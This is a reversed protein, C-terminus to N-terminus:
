LLDYLDEALARRGQLPLQTDLKEKQSEVLQAALQHVRVRLMEWFQALLQPVSHPNECAVVCQYLDKLAERESALANVAWASSRVKLLPTVQRALAALLKDLQKYTEEDEALWILTSFLTYCQGIAFMSPRCLEQGVSSIYRFGTARLHGTMGGDFVNTWYREPRRYMSALATLIPRPNVFYDAMQWFSRETLFVDDIALTQITGNGLAFHFYLIIFERAKTDTKKPVANRQGLMEVEYLVGRYVPLAHRFDTLDNDEEEENDEDKGANEDEMPVPPGGNTAEAAASLLPPPAPEIRAFQLRWYDLLIPIVRPRCFLNLFLATVVAEPNYDTTAGTTTTTTTLSQQKKKTKKKHVVPRTTRQM